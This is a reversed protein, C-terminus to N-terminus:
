TQILYFFRSDQLDTMKLMLFMRIFNICVRHLSADMKDYNREATEENNEIIDPAFIYKEKIHFTKNTNKKFIKNGKCGSHYNKQLVNM